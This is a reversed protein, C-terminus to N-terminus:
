RLLRRATEAPARAGLGGGEAPDGAGGDRRGRARVARRQEAAGGAARVGDGHLGGAPHVVDLVIMLFITAVMASGGSLYGSGLLAFTAWGILAAMLHSLVLTRVANTGHQPDLYILFASSALSAFLLRQESLM